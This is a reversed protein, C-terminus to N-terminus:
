APMISVPWFKPQRWFRPRIGSELAHLIAMLAVFTKGSGVDGQLLRLMRTDAIQDAKIEDIVRTQATTPEFPLTSLLASTLAGTGKLGTGNESKHTQRRLLGLAFQNALLEDYALRSRAPTSALLDTVEKPHHVTELAQKHSPWKHQHLTQTDIWEEM